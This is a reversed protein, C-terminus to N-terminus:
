GRGGASGPNRSDFGWGEARDHARRIRQILHQEDVPGHNNLYGGIGSIVVGREADDPGYREPPLAGRGITKRIAM